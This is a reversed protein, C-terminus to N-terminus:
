KKAYRSREAKNMDRATVILAKSGINRIFFVSLFRGSETRGLANYLHEGEVRGKEKRFIRCQGCLVQEVETIHGKGRRISLNTNTTAIRESKSQVDIFWIEIQM